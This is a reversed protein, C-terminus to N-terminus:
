GRTLTHGFVDGAGIFEDNPGRLRPRGRYGDCKGGSSTLVSRNRDRLSAWSSCHANGTNGGACSRSLQNQDIEVKVCIGAQVTAVDLGNATTAIQEAQAKLQWLFVKHAAHLDQDAICKHNQRAIEGKVVAVALPASPVNSAGDTWIAM